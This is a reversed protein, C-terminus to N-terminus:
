FERPSSRSRGAALCFAQTPDGAADIHRRPQTASDIGAPQRPRLQQDVSQGDPRSGPGHQDAQAPRRDGGDDARHHSREDRRARRQGEDERRHQDRCQLGPPDAPDHGQDPELRRGPLNVDWSQPGRRRTQHGGGFAHGHAGPDAQHQDDDGAAIAHDGALGRLGFLGGGAGALFGVLFVGIPQAQQHVLDVM